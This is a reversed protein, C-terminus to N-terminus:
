RTTVYTPLSRDSRVREATRVAEEKSRFAGVRVRYRVQGDDSPSPVIQAEFGGDALRKKVGAAQQATGFVGVQVTWETTSRQPEQADRDTARPATGDEGRDAEKAPSALAKAPKAGADAKDHIRVPELPETLTQYFTLKGHLQPPREAGAETLGGRRRTPTPKRPSDAAVAPHTHGARHWGVLMGLGFTLGLVVLLVASLAM